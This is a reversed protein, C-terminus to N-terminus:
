VEVCRRVLKIVSGEEGPLVGLIGFFDFSWLLDRGLIIIRLGRANLGGGRSVCGM